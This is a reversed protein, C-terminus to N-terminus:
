ENTSEEWFVTPDISQGRKDQAQIHLHPGEKYEEGAPESVFGIHQGATVLDGESLGDVCDVYRYEVLEGNETEITVVPGFLLDRDSISIIKGSVCAIVASGVEAAIDVGTHPTFYNLTKNHFFEGHEVTVVGDKVPFPSVAVEGGSNDGSSDETGSNDGSSDETGSNDGSSDGTGSNDGSSDETVPNGGSPSENGRGNILANYLLVGAIICLSLCSVICILWVATKKSNKGEAKKDARETAAEKGFYIASPAAGLAESLAILREADPCVVGREWKSVVDASVGLIESLAGQSLSKKKRYYAIARGMKVADFEPSTVPSGFGSGILEELSLTLSFAIAGLMSFDPTIIGREWKSVTQTHVGMKEAFDSQTIKARNRLGKLREGFLM